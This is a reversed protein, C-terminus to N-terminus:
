KVEESEVINWRDKILIRNIRHGDEKLKDIIENGNVRYFLVENEWLGVLDFLGIDRKLVYFTNTNTDIIEGGDFNKKKYENLFIDKM